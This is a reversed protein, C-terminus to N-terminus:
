KHANVYAMFESRAEQSRFIGRLITTRMTGAKKVGRMSKCLHEAELVLALGIPADVGNESLSDQIHDLIENGLREQIQLKASHYDVVRAVKSLGLINGKESPIYAFWYRGIFPMMHHECMSYFSGTDCIMDDCVLGDNGNPFKTVAPRQAPDYGRFIEKWMKVVRRPTDILGTRAPDEGIHQFTRTILDEADTDKSEEWPFVYWISPASSTPRCSFLAYGPKLPYEAHVRQMTKGSDVCDDLVLDAESISFAKVCLGNEVLLDVCREGGRPIGYVKWSKFDAVKEVVRDLYDKVTNLYANIIMDNTVYVVTRTATTNRTM